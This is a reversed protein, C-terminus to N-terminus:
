KINNWEDYPIQKKINSWYRERKPLFLNIYLFNYDHVFHHFMEMFAKKTKYINVEEEIKALEQQNQEYFVMVRANTRIVNPCQRFNQFAFWCSVHYHRSRACFQAILDHNGRIMGQCDDLILVYNPHKFEKKYIREYREELEDPDLEEDDEIDEYKKLKKMQNKAKERLGEEIIEVDRKIM